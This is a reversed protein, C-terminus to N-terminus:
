YNDMINNALFFNLWPQQQQQQQKIRFDYSLFIGPSRTHTFVFIGNAFTFQLAFMVINLQGFVKTM